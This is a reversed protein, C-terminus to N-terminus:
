KLKPANGYFSVPTPAASFPLDTGPLVQVPMFMWTTSLKNNKAINNNVIKGDAGVTFAMVRALKGGRLVKIEYEGPNKSLFHATYNNASQDKERRYVRVGGFTFKWRFWTREKDIGPTTLTVDAIGGGAGESKTSFIQKGKYYVYGEPNNASVDGKFWFYASLAPAEDDLNTDIELYGTPLLWDHGVFFETEGPKTGFPYKYKSVEFKGTYLVKKTNELENKLIITFSCIGAVPIAKSEEQDSTSVTKWAGPELEPTEVPLSLWPQGNPKTVNVIVQGGGSIPGRLAFQFRPAWSWQGYVPEKKPNPVYRTFRQVGVVLRPIIISPETAGSFEAFAYEQAHAPAAAITGSVVATGILPAAFTIAGAMLRLSRTLNYSSFM